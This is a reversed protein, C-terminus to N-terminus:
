GRDAGKPVDDGVAPLRFEIKDKDVWPLSDLRGDNDCYELIAAWAFSRSTFCARPVWWQLQGDNHKVWPSFGGGAYPIAITPDAEQDIHMLFVGHKPKYAFYLSPIDGRVEIGKGRRKVHILEAALSCVKWYSAPSHFLTDHLDDFSPKVLRDGSPSQLTLTRRM